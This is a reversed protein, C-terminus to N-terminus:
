PHDKALELGAKQTDTPCLETIAYSRFGLARLLYDALSAPKARHEIYASRLTGAAMVAATEATAQLLVDSREDSVDVMICLRKM